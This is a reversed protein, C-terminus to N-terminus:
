CSMQCQAEGEHFLSPHFGIMGAQNEVRLRIKWLLFLRITTPSIYPFDKCVHHRKYRSFM